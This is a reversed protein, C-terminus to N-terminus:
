SSEFATEAQAETLSRGQAVHRPPKLDGPEGNM